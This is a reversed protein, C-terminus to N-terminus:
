SQSELKALENKMKLIRRKKIDDKNLEYYKKLINDFNNFITSANEMSFYLGYNMSDIYKPSYTKLESWFKEFFVTPYDKNFIDGNGFMYPGGPFSIKLLLENEPQRGDDSRSIRRKYKDGWNGIVMHSGFTNWDFRSIKLPNINLGHTDKLEMGFLHLKAKTELSDIDFCIIDKNKKLIKLVKKYVIETENEM